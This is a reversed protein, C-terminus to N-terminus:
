FLPNPRFVQRNHGSGDGQSSDPEAEGSEEGERAGEEMISLADKYIPEDIFGYTEDPFGTIGRAAMEEFRSVIIRAKEVERADPRFILNALKAQDPSICGRSRFGILRDLELWSRFEELNRHDQYVFSVPHAGALRTELFFQSMIHTILPNERKLSAFPVGLSVMLDLIGLYFTDVRPDIKFERIAGFAERTEISLHLAMSDPLHRLVEEVERPSKVKPIRVGDPNLPVLFELDELGGADLPNVRVIVRSRIRDIRSLFLGVMARATGKEEPAVGDELNVIAVDAPIEDLRNLHRPRAGSVM